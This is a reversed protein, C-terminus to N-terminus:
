QVELCSSASDKCYINYFDALTDGDIYGDEYNQYATTTCNHYVEWADCSGALISSSNYVTFVTILLIFTTKFLLNIKGM